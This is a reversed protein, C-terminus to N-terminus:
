WGFLVRVLHRGAIGLAPGIAVRALRLGIWRWRLTPQLRSRRFRNAHFLWARPGRIVRLDAVRVQVALYGPFKFVWLAPPASAVEGIAGIPITGLPPALPQDKLLRVIDGRQM